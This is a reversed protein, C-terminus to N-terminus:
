KELQLSIFEAFLPLSVPKEFFTANHKRLNDEGIDSGSGCLIVKAAGAPAFELLDLGDLGPMRFDTVLVNVPNRAIYEKAMLSDTFTHVRIEPNVHLIFSKLIEPIQKEDDVLVVELNRDMGIREGPPKGMVSLNELM